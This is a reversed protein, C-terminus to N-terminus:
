IGLRAKGRCKSRSHQYHVSYEINYLLVSMLLKTLYGVLGQQLIEFIVKGSFVFQLKDQDQFWNSTRSTSTQLFRNFKTHRKYRRLTMWDKFVIWIFLALISPNSAFNSEDKILVAKCQFTDWTLGRYEGKPYCIGCLNSGFCNCYGEHKFIWSEIHSVFVKRQYKYKKLINTNLTGLLWLTVSFITIFCQTCVHIM